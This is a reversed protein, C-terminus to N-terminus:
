PQRYTSSSSFPNKPKDKYDYDKMRISLREIIEARQPPTLDPDNQVKTVAENYMKRIEVDQKYPGEFIEFLISKYDFSRKNKSDEFKVKYPHEKARRELEKMDEIDRECEIIQEDLFLATARNEVGTADQRQRQLKQIELRLNNMELFVNGGWLRDIQTCLIRNDEPRASDVAAKQKQHALEFLWFWYGLEREKRSFVDAFEAAKSERFQLQAKLTEIFRIDTPERWPQDKGYDPAPLKARNTLGAPWRLTNYLWDAPMSIILSPIVSVVAVWFAFDLHGYDILFFMFVTLVPFTFIIVRAMILKKAAM